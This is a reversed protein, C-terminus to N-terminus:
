EGGISMEALTTYGFKSRMDRRNLTIDSCPGYICGEPCVEIAGVKGRPNFDSADRQHTKTKVLM